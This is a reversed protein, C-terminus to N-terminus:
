KTYVITLRGDERLRLITGNAAVTEAIWFGNGEIVTIHDTNAPEKKERFQMYAILRCREKWYTEIPPHKGTKDAFVLFGWFEPCHMNIQWQPSWVWNHEPRNPIKHLKDDVDWEVRSFNIRWFEGVTPPCRRSSSWAMDKWPIAFTCGWGESIAEPDNLKGEIHVAHKMGLANWENVASGGFRYPKPLTLDWVTNLANIEIELYQHNDDDPDIFIEFDNDQFIVSDRETLTGWIHREEMWAGVYLYHEDWMMKMATDLPPQVPHEPGEIDM